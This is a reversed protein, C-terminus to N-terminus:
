PTMRTPAPQSVSSALSIPSFIWAMLPMGTKAWITWSSPPPSATMRRQTSLALCSSAWASCHRRTGAGMLLSTSPVSHPPESAKDPIVALGAM